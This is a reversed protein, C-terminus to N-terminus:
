SCPARPSLVVARHILRLRDTEGVAVVLEARRPMGDAFSVRLRRTQRGDVACIHSYRGALLRPRATRRPVRVFSGVEFRLRMSRRRISAGLLVSREGPNHVTFSLLNTGVETAIDAVVTEGVRDGARAGAAVLAGGAGLVCTTLALCLLVATV